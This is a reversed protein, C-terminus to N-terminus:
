CGPHTEFRYGRAALVPLAATLASVTQRRNGGGDHMLVVAGPRAGTLLRRVVRDAGPKAWDGTDVTWMVLRQGSEAAVSRVVVNVQGYPPRLCEAGPVGGEVERRIEARGLGTLHAHTATHNGVRHGAARVRAALRPHRRIESGVQFFTATADHRALVALIRPTWRPDPGDDFTLYLVPGRAARGPLVRAGDGSAADGKAAGPAQTRQQGTASGLTLGGARWGTPEAAADSRASRETRVDGAEQALPAPGPALAAAPGIALVGLLM